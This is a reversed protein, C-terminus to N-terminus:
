KNSTNANTKSNSSNNTKSKNANAPTLGQNTKKQPPTAQAQTENTHVTAYARESADHPPDLMILCTRPAQLEPFRLWESRAPHPPRCCLRQRTPPHQPTSSEYFLVSSHIYGFLLSCYLAAEGWWDEDNVTNGGALSNWARLNSSANSKNMNSSNSLIQM